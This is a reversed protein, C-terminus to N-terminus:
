AKRDVVSPQYCLRNGMRIGETLERPRPTSTGYVVKSVCPKPSLSTLVFLNTSSGLRSFCSYLLM